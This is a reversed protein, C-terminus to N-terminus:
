CVEIPLEGVRDDGDHRRGEFRVQGFSVTVLDDKDISGVSLDEERGREAQEM